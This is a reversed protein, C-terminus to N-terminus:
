DKRQLFVVKQGFKKEEVISNCQGKSQINRPDNTLRTAHDPEQNAIYTIISM